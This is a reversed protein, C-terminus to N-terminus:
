IIEDLDSEVQGSESNRKRLYRSEEGLDRLVGVADRNWNEQKVM